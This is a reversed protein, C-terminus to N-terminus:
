LRPSTVAPEITDLYTLGQVELSGGRKREASPVVVATSQLLEM